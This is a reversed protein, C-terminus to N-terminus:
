PAVEYEATREVRISRDGFFPIRVDRAVLVTADFPRGIFAPCRCGVLRARNAAAIERAAQIPARGEIAAAVAALAAADAATETEVRESVVVLISVLAFGVAVIVGIAAVALVTASGQQSRRDSM